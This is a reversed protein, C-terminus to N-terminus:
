RCRERRMRGEVAVPGIGATAGAIAAGERVAAAAAAAAAVVAVVAVAVEVVVTGAPVVAVDGAQMDEAM